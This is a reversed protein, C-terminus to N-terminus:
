TDAVCGAGFPANHNSRGLPQNDKVIASRKDLTAFTKHVVITGKVKGPGVAILRQACWRPEGVRNHMAKVIGDSPTTCGRAPPSDKCMCLLLSQVVM